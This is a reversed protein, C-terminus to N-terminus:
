QVRKMKNLEFLGFGYKLKLEEDVEVAAKVGEMFLYIHAASDFKKSRPWDIIWEENIQFNEDILSFLDVWEFSKRGDFNKKIKETIEPERESFEKFDEEYGMLFSAAKLVVPLIEELVSPIALLYCSHYNTDTYIIEAIYIKPSELIGLDEFEHFLSELDFKESETEYISRLYKM